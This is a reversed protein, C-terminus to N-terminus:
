AVIKDLLKLISSSIASINLKENWPSRIGTIAIAIGAIIKAIRYHYEIGRSISM